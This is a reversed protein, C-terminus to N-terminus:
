RHVSAPLLDDFYKEKLQSPMKGLKRVKKKKEKELNKTKDDSNQTKMRKTKKNKIKYKNQQLHWGM